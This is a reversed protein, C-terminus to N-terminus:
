KLDICLYHKKFAKDVASMIWDNSIPLSSLEFVKDNESRKILTEIYNSVDDQFSNCYIIKSIHGRGRGPEYKIYNNDILIKIRYQVNTLSTNWLEQIENRSILISQNIERLHFYSRLEFYYYM